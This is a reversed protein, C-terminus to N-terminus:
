WYPSAPNEFDRVKCLRKTSLDFAYIAWKEIERFAAAGRDTDAEPTDGGVNANVFDSDSSFLVHGHVFAPFSGFYPLEWREKKSLDVVVVYTLENWNRETFAAYRGDSSFTLGNQEKSTGGMGISGDALRLLHGKGGSCFPKGDPWLYREEHMEHVSYVPLAHSRAGLDIVTFVNGETPTSIRLVHKLNGEFLRYVDAHPALGNSGRPGNKLFFFAGDPASAHRMGTTRAVEQGTTTDVVVGDVIEAEENLVLATLLNTKPVFTPWAWHESNPFSRWAGTARDLVGKESAAITGDENVGVGHRTTGEVLVHQLQGSMTCRAIWARGEDTQLVAFAESGTCAPLQGQKAFAPAAEASAMPVAIDPKSLLFGEPETATPEAVATSPAAQPGGGSGLAPTVTTPRASASTRLAPADPAKRAAPERSCALAGCLVPIWLIRLRGLEWNGGDRTM